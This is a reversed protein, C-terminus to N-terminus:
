IPVQYFDLCKKQDDNETTQKERKDKLHYNAQSRISANDIQHGIHWTGYCLSLTHIYTVINNYTYKISSGM